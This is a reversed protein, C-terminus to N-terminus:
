ATGEEVGFALRNSAQRAWRTLSANLAAEAPKSSFPQGELTPYTKV